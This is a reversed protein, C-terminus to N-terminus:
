VTDVKVTFEEQKNERFYRVEDLSPVDIHSEAIKENYAEIGMQDLIKWGKERTEDLKINIMDLTKRLIFAVPILANKYLFPFGEFRIDATHMRVRWTPEEGYTTVPLGMGAELENSFTADLPVWQGNLLCEVEGHLSDIFGLMELTERLLPDDRIMMNYLQESPALAYLRYRASMGGARLLAAILSLQDLCVGGKTRFTGIAGRMPKFLLKKENKVFYFVSKVYAEDTIKGAGLKKAMARIEPADSKCLRTPRLYKKDSVPMLDKYDDESLLQRSDYASEDDIHAWPPEMNKLRHTWVPINEMVVRPNRGMVYVLPGTAKLTNMILPLPIFFGKDLENRIKGLMNIVEVGPRNPWADPQRM